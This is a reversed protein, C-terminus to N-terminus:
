AASLVSAFLLSGLAFLTGILWNLQQPM